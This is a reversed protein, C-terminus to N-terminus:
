TKRILNKRLGEYKGDRICDLILKTLRHTSYGMKAPLYRERFDQLAAMDYPENKIANILEDLNKFVSNPMEEYPNINVGNIALYNEYDYLYFYIPKNIVAAEFSIASFDTIVIDCADLVAITPLNNYMYPLLAEKNKVIQNPHPKVILAYKDSPFAKVVHSYDIAVGRRFTPAYLVLTKGKLQPYITLLLDRNSKRNELLYDIRPLGINLLQEKEVGFSACYYDNMSDAGAIVVDYGKHMDMAEAIDEQRGYKKGLTQYGSQKMKGIAHWMQIVTLSEKHQLMSVVPWYSDLVCVSSTALHYLSVFTYWVFRIISSLNKELRKTIMVIKVSPDRRLLEDRLLLFDLGPKDSQRSLFVVKNGSPLHKMLKYLNEAFFKLFSIFRSVKTTPLLNFKVKPNESRM